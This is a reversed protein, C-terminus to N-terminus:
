LYVSFIKVYPNKIEISSKILNKFLLSIKYLLIISTRAVRVSTKLYLSKLHIVIERNRYIHIYLSKYLRAIAKGRVLVLVLVLVLGM